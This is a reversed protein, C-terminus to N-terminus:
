GMLQEIRATLKAIENAIMARLQAIDADKERKLERLGGVALVGFGGSKLTLTPEGSEEDEIEGVMTPFLPQVDQALFGIHRTPEEPNDRWRYNKVALQMLRDLIHEEDAIATKLRADSPYDWNDDGNWKAIVTKNPHHHSGTLALRLSKSEDDVWIWAERGEPSHLRIRGSIDLAEQPNRQGIGLRGSNTDFHMQIDGARDRIYLNDDVTIYVQGNYRYFAGDTDLHESRQRAVNVGQTTIDGDVDLNTQVSLNGSILANGIVSLKHTPETTGIGVQNRASSVHLTNTDVTLDGSMLANGNVDLPAAPTTTGIGVHGNSRLSLVANHADFHNDTLKIDLQTRANTGSNEYRGLALSVKNGHAQNPVGERVLNLIDRTGNPQNGGNDAPEFLTLVAEGYRDYKNDHKINPNITLRSVPDTTGIGLRKTNSNVHLTDTNVTLDGSMLANGRVDLKETLNISAINLSGNNTNFHIQASSKTDRIYLNDDVTIYAQGSYRYFAGDVDLHDSRSRSSVDIGQTIINGNVDLTSDVSLSGRILANGNVDLKEGPNTMGIGLNNDVHLDASVRLSGTMVDGQKSLLGGTLASFLRRLDEQITWTGGALTLAALPAYHHRIGLAPQPGDNPWDIQGTLHRTPILWYDGTKYQGAEFKIEIGKELELWGENAAPTELTAAGPSDWRRVIPRTGLNRQWDQGCVAQQEATLPPWAAVTLSRESVATLKAFMGPLGNLTLAENSFEIWQNPAFRSQVATEADSLVGTKDTPEVLPRERQPGPPPTRQQRQPQAHQRHSATESRPAAPQGTHQTADPEPM